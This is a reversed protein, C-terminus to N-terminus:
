SRVAATSGRVILAPRVSLTEFGGERGLRDLLADVARRGVRVFDQRVTTLPPLSHAAGPIDDFGVVSVEDPVRRGLEALAHLAGLAMEDNGCFLATADAELELAARYGSEVSWDGQLPPLQPMGARRLEAAFASRRLGAEIFDEPGAIYQVKQHGLDLLHRMVARVGAAQDVAVSTAANTRGAQLVAVPLSPHLSSLAELTQRYPAIVVLAEIAQDLLFDLAQGSEDAQFSTILPHYGARRIAHEVAYLSSTPGFNPTAPSMVGIVHSRSTALRSASLNRRYGLEDIAALVRERTEPKVLEIGNVVRWVTQHSVGARAAVDFM